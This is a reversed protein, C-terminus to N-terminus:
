LFSPDRYLEKGAFLTLLVKASEIEQPAIKFLDKDFVVLDAAKGVTISGTEKEIFEM